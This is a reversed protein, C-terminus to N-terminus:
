AIKVGTSQASAADWLQMANSIVLILLLKTIALSADPASKEMIALTAVLSANVSKVLPLTTALRQSKVINLQLAAEATIM